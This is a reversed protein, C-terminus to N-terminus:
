KYKNETLVSVVSEELSFVSSALLQLEKYSTILQHMDYGILPSCASGCGGALASCGAAAWDDLLM